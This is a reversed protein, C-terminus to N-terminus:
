RGHYHDRKDDHRVGGPVAAGVTDFRGEAVQGFLELGRALFAAQSRPRDAHLPTMSLFLLSEILKVQRYRIGARAALWQHFMEKVMRHGGSLHPELRVSDGEVELDFMGGSLFDYDGELSHSLKALDYRPDGHLRFRGFSGRPDIFRVFGNRRDFLINSLCLDGHLITFGTDDYLELRETVSPLVALCAEIGAREVGNIRLHPRRFVELGPQEACAALRRRTKEEYMERMAHRREARGAPSVHAQMEDLAGSIARLAQWWVGANWQGHLYVDNLAPYGYFEMEAFTAGGDLHYEFIRPVLHQLSKPLDLYWRIENALKGTESSTKRVVGRGTDVQMTNFFRQNLFYTRQTAYYTDLHGFDCWREVRQLRRGGLPRQNFYRALARWFPDTNSNGEAVERDLIELFRGPEAIACVGVFVPLSVNAPKPRDKEIITRICGTEDAQFATWRYLDEMERYCIVDGDEIQDAVLTDAFNIVLRSPMERRSHLAVSVTEALSGTEGVDVAEARLEPHRALYDAVQEGREHVGVVADFGRAAYPALIHNLAPRSALPVMGSALDGFDTRLEPPALRASPLLLLNNM